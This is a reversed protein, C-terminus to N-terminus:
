PRRQPAPSRVPRTDPESRLLGILRRLDAVASDGRETIAALLAPDLSSQAAAATRRMEAVAERVVGVTDEALRAREDSIVRTVVADQDEAELRAQAYGAVRGAETRRQILMGFHWMGGFLLLGFLANPVTPDDVTLVAVLSGIVALGPWVPATRGLLYSAALTPMLFSGNTVHVDMLPYIALVAVLGFGGRVPWRALWVMGIM